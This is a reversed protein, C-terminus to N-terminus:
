EEREEKWDLVPYVVKYYLLKPDKYDLHSRPADFVNAHRKNYMYINILALLVKMENARFKHVYVLKNGLQTKEILEGVIEKEKWEHKKYIENDWYEKIDGDGTYDESLLFIDTRKFFKYSVSRLPEWVSQPVVYSSGDYSILLPSKVVITDVVYRVKYDDHLSYRFFYDFHAEEETQRTRCSTVVLFMLGMIVIIKTIVKM